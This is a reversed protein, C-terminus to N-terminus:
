KDRLAKAIQVILYAATLVAVVLSAVQNVRALNWSTLAGVLGFSSKMFTEVVMDHNM